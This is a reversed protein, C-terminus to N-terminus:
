SNEEELEAIRKWLINSNEETIIKKAVKTL